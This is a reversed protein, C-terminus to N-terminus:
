ETDELDVSEIDVLNDDDVLDVVVDLDVEHGFMGWAHAVDECLSRAHISPFDGSEFGSVSSCNRRSENNPLRAKRTGHVKAGMMKVEM